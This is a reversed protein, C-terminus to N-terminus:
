CGQAGTAMEVEGGVLTLEAHVLQPCQSPSHLLAVRKGNLVPGGHISYTIHNIEM